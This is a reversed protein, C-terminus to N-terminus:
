LNFEPQEDTILSRLIADAASGDSRELSIRTKSILAKLKHRTGLWAFGDRKIESDGEKIAEDLAGGPRVYKAVGPSIMLEFAIFEDSENDSFFESLKTITEDLESKKLEAMQWKWDLM